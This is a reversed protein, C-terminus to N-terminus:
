KLQELHQVTQRLHHTAHYGMLYFMERITLKGLLPHPLVFTDLEDDTYQELLQQISLLDKRIGAAIEEKQEVSVPEPLFPQPAQRSTKFYNEIVTDYDWTPRNIKGFKEIISEKSFLAKLFPTITLSVHQFQQGATWKGKYSYLFQEDTLTHIYDIM